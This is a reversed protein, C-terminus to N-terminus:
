RRGGGISPSCVSSTSCSRSPMLASSIAVSRAFRITQDVAVDFADRNGTDLYSECPLGEALIVRHRDLEVHWYTVSDEPQQIVSAGNVLCRVPILVGDMFVAHDPSLWLDRHPRDRGFAHAGIRVPWANRAERRGIWRVPATGGAACVVRDGISLMGIPVEGRVTLISTGDAYCAAEALTVAAPAQILGAGQEAASTDTLPIASQQLLKTVETTTLKPNAQLMLAAVGAATAVAASTGTFPAFGSVPVATGDPAVFDVGGAPQPPTLPNGSSDLLLTGTGGDSYDELYDAPQGFAPTSAFNVAGVANVGPVEEQEALESGGSGVANDEVVLGDDSEFTFEFRSVATSGTQYIALYDTQSAAPIDIVSMSVPTTTTGNADINDDAQTSTSLLQGSASFLKMALAPAPAATDGPGFFPADWQLDIYQDVTTSSIVPEYATGNDFINASVVSGDDLTTTAANFSSALFDNGDNGSSTFYDVGSAIAATVAADVTGTVQFLPIHGQGIDDVIINCGAQQLSQIATAFTDESNTMSAPNDVGDTAFDLTAGPAVQHILEAMALGENTNDQDSLVTVASTGDPNAPIYGAAAAANAPDPGPSHSDFSDSIIGVKVGSGTIPTKTGKV